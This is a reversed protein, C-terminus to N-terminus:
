AFDTFNLGTFGLRCLLLTKQWTASGSSSVTETYRRVELVSWLETDQLMQTLVQIEM